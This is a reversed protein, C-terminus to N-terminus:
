AVLDKYGQNETEVVFKQLYTCSPTVTLKKDLAYDFAAIALQKAIGRGRLEVPVGTHFMDVHCDGIYSYELIAKIESNDSLPIYFLRRKIDHVVKLDAASAFQRLSM